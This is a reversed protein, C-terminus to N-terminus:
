RVGLVERFTRTMLIATHHGAMHGLEHALIGALEDENRVFAVLKRSVYVRGGASAFANPIPLDVLYARLRLNKVPLYKLLRNAIASLFATMEPDDTLRFHHQVHEAIADGLDAEQQENFINQERSTLPLPPPQCPQQPFGLQPVMCVIIAVLPLSRRPLCTAM